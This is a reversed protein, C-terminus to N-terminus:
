VAASGYTPVRDMLAQAEEERERRRQEQIVLGVGLCVLAMLLYVGLLWPSSAFPSSSPPSIVVVYYAALCIAGGAVGAAASLARRQQQWRARAAATKTVAENHKRREDREATASSPASRPSAHPPFAPSTSSSARTAPPHGPGVRSEVLRLPRDIDMKYSEQALHDRRRHHHCPPDRPTCFPTSPLGFPPASCRRPRRTTTGAAATLAQAMVRRTCALSSHENTTLFANIRQLIAVQARCCGCEVDGKHAPQPLAAPTPSAPPPEALLWKVSGLRKSALFTLPDVTSPM